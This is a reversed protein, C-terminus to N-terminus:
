KKPAYVSRDRTLRATDAESLVFVDTRDKDAVRAYRQKGGSGGVVGGVELVHRGAPSNVALTAEPKELGYLKLDAGADAAYREVRLAGLTGLLENVARVDIADAPKAPDVWEAGQKELRFKAGGVALDVSEAQAADVDWPKRARYEALVRDTRAADLLGVLEGPGTAVHARGDATKKGVLLVLVPKDDYTLTWKAEPRDLGFPKLDKTKEAVWTDARLKGLEAVLAELEASEATAEVPATVKWTVGTKAFTVKRDGRELVLKDADVFRALTRDRFAIPPALLKKALAAPLVGVIAEPAASDVAAYRDGDPKAADVPKGVRLTKEEAREGVTLRIAASPRELGYEKFVEAKKGYAAVRSAKLRGLTEALEDVLPQDARQKTPKVLDWGVAAAPALELEQKGATRSLAVLTAPDFTLLTRDAYQFKERALDEAADAPIVGVAPKGDVRVFRAGTPDLNGLALTHTAPKEGGTTVVVTNAPKDLGFDAWKIADGYAALRVVPPRAAAATLADIREADLGYTAGEASWKGAADKALTFANEPKAPTVRVKAVTAPDLSLLARDPLSLPSTQAAALFEPGVVFVPANPTDLRAYRDLRDPTPGGVVVTKTVTSEAPEGPKQERFTLKVTLYPKDLGFDAPNGVSLAQYRVATLKGLAALPQANAAPVSAAFPATLRWGGGDRAVTLSDKAANGTRVVEVATIKDPTTAWVALPLLGVAGTTLQDTTSTPLGFVGGRDLRAFLEPKGPRPAGLELTYTRPGFGLTVTSAPRDLVYTKLQEPTPNDGLFETARLSALAAALQDSKTADAATDIPATMRWGDAAKTLSFAGAVAVANLPAGGADFLKLSRYALAPRSFYASLTEPFLVAGLWRGSPESGLSDDVMSVRPRGALSVPLLGDAGPRGIALTFTRDPADPEGEARRERATVVITAGAPPPAQPYTRRDADDSQLSALKQLLDTVRSTEAPLPNPEAAILWRDQREEDKSASRNGKKLTLKVPTGGEPRLEVERVEDPDFRAVRPDTMEAATAFLDDFKDAPVVFVQPNGAVRAYRYETPVKRTVTQPPMGPQPSPMTVQEDREGVRAVGGFWATVEDAGKRKVTVSRKSDAFGMRKDPPMANHVPIAERAARALPSELAAPLAIALPGPDFTVFRDVWLGAVAALVSRLKAPDAPEPRPAALAWADALRDAPLAPEGGRPLIGPEPLPGTRALTFASLPSFDFGLLRPGEGRVSVSETDPGPLTVTAPADSPPAGFPAQPAAGAVRVREVDAFLQRRRYSEAPRRLVPMVDPGLTLVEPSDGIRVYAPRTFADGGEAKPEGFQLSHASGDKLTVTVALPHQGATLGFRALDDGAPTAHFRTRLNGLTEVLERVQAERLPWNGPTKWPAAADARRVELTEGGPYAVKMAVVDDAKLSDLAAVASSPPPETSAPKLGLRPAVEDGLFLWAGAGGALLVLILTSKWSM